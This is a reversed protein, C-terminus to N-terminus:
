TNVRYTCIVEVFHKFSIEKFIGNISEELPLITEVISNVVSEAVANKVWGGFLTIALNELVSFFSFNNEM